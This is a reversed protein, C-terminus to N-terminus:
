AALALPPMLPEWERVYTHYLRIFRASVEGAKQDGHAVLESHTRALEPFSAVLSTWPDDSALCRAFKQVQGRMIELDGRQTGKLSEQSMLM